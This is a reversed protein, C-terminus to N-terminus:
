ERIFTVQTSPPSLLGDLKVRCSFSLEYGIYPKLDALDFDPYPSEGHEYECQEQCTPDRPDAPDQKYLFMLTPSPPYSASCNLVYADYRYGDYGRYEQKNIRFTLM